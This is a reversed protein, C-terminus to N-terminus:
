NIKKLYYNIKRFWSSQNGNPYSHIHQLTIHNNKLFIITWKGNLPAGRPEINFESPFQNLLIVKQNSIKFVKLLEESSIINKNEGVYLNNVTHRDNPMNEYWGTEHLYLLEWKSNVQISDISSAVSIEKIIEIHKAISDNVVIKKLKREFLFRETAEKQSFSIFSILIFLTSFTNKM